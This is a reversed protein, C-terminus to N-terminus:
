IYMYIEGGQKNLYGIGKEALKVKQGMQSNWPLINIIQNGDLTEIEFKTGFSCSDLIRLKTHLDNGERILM